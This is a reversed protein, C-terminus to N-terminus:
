NNDSAPEADEEVKPLILLVLWERFRRWWSKRPSARVPLRDPLSPVPVGESVEEEEEYTHAGEVPGGEPTGAVPFSPVLGSVDSDLSECSDQIDIEGSGEEVVDEPPEGPHPDAEEDEEEEDEDEDEDGSEGGGDRESDDESAEESPESSEFSSSPAGESLDESLDSTQPDEGPGDMGLVWVLAAIDPYHFALPGMNDKEAEDLLGQLRTNFEDKVEAKTKKPKWHPCQRAMECSEPMDDDCVTVPWKEGDPLQLRCLGVEKGGVSQVRKNHLCGGPERRFNEKIAKSLHRYVVQNLRHRIKGESKM